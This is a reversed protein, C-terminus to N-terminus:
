KWHRPPKGFRSTTINITGPRWSRSYTAFTIDLALQPVDQASAGFTRRKCKSMAIRKRDNVDRM